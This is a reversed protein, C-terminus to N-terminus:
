RSIKNSIRYYIKKHHLALSLINVNIFINDNQLLIM